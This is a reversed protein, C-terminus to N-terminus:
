ILAAWRLIQAALLTFTLPKQLLHHSRLMHQSPLVPPGTPYRRDRGELKPHYGSSLVLAMSFFVLLPCFWGAELLHTKHCICYFRLDLIITELPNDWDNIKERVPIFAVLLPVVIGSVKHHQWPVGDGLSCFPHPIISEGCAKEEKISRPCSTVM